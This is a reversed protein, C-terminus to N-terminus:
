AHANRAGPTRASSRPIERRRWRGSCRTTCCRPPSACRSQERLPILLYPQIGGVRHGPGRFALALETLRDQNWGDERDEGMLQFLRCDDQALRSGVQKRTRLRYAIMAAVGAPNASSLEAGLNSARKQREPTRRITRSGCRANVFAALARLTDPRPGAAAGPPLPLSPLSAEKKHSM